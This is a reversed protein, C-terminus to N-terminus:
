IHIFSLQSDSSALAKDGPGALKILPIDNSLSVRVQVQYAKESLYLIAHNDLPDVVAYHGADVRSWDIEQYLPLDPRQSWRSSSHFAHKQM